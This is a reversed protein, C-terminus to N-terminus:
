SDSWATGMTSPMTGARAPLDLFAVGAQLDFYRGLGLYGKLSIDGGATFRSDQPATLPVAIGPEVKVGVEVASATAPLALLTAIPLALTVHFISRHLAM